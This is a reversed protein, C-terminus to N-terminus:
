IYFPRYHAIEVSVLPRKAMGVANQLQDAIAGALAEPTKGAAAVPGVLPLSLDGSPGVTFEDVLAKWEHVEGVSNRWEYVRISIKGDVGLRYAEAVPTTASRGSGSLVICVAIAALQLHKRMSGRRLKSLASLEVASACLRILGRIPQRSVATGDHSEA